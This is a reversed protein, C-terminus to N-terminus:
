LSTMRIKKIEKCDSITYTNLINITGDFNIRNILLLVRERNGIILNRCLCSAQESSEDPESYGKKDKLLEQFVNVEILNLFHKTSRITGCVEV